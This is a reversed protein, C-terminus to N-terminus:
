CRGDVRRRALQFRDDFSASPDRWRLREDDWKWRERDSSRDGGIERRREKREVRVESRWEKREM